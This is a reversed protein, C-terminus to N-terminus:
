ILRIIFNEIPCFGFSEAGLISVGSPIVISLLRSCNYFARSGIRQLASNEEFVVSTLQAFNLFAEDAITTVKPTFIVEKTNEWGRLESLCSEQMEGAGNVVIQGTDKNGTIYPTDYAGSVIKPRRDSIFIHDFVIFLLFVVNFM